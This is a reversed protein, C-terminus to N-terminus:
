EREIIAAEIRAAETEGFLEGMMTVFNYVLDARRIGIVNNMETLFRELLVDKDFGVLTAVEKIDEIDKRYLRAIKILAWDHKEPVVLQLKKFGLRVIKVRDEYNDPTMYVGSSVVPVALGTEERAGELADELPGINTTVDIDGTGSTAGFLLVAVAEGIVDLRFPKKLRRDVARLFKRLEKDSFLNM